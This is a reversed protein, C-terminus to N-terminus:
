FEDKEGPAVYVQSSADGGLAGSNSGGNQSGCSAFFMTISLIIAVILISKYKNM